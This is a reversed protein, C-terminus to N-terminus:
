AKNAALTAFGNVFAHIDDRKPDRLGDRWEKPIWETGKAAGLIAGLM